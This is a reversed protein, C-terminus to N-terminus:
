EKLKTKAKYILGAVDGTYYNKGFKSNLEERIKKHSVGKRSRKLAYLEDDFRKSTRMKTATGDTIQRGHIISYAKLIDKQTTEPYICVRYYIEKTIPDRVSEILAGGAAVESLEVKPNNIKSLLWESWFPSLNFRERISNLALLKDRSTKQKSAYSIMRIFKKNSSLRRIIEKAKVPLYTNM